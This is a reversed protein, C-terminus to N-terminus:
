RWTDPLPKGPNQLPGVYLSNNKRAIIIDESKPFNSIFDSEYDVREKIVLKNWSEETIGEPKDSYLPIKKEYSIARIAINRWEDPDSAIWRNIEIGMQDNLVSRLASYGDGKTDATAWARSRSQFVYYWFTAQIKNGSNWLYSIVSVYVFPSVQSPDVYLIYESAIKQKDVTSQLMELLELESLKKNSEISNKKNTIKQKKETSTSVLMESPESESVKEDQEMISNKTYENKTILKKYYVYSISCIILVLSALSYKTLHKM